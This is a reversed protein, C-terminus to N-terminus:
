RCSSSAGRGFFGEGELYLLTCRVLSAKEASTDKRGKGREVSRSGHHKSRDSASRYGFEGSERETAYVWLLVYWGWRWWKKRGEKRGKEREEEM